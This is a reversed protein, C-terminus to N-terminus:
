RSSIVYLTGRGGLCVTVAEIGAIGDIGDMFNYLNLLWVLYLVALLHGLWGLDLMFGFVPLPPLGGLWALVWGAGIFHTLLRWRAPIHGHDDLFGVLAVWAGAGLLAWVIDAPLGNVQGLLSLAVLFTLVIAAGGGRATPITHSSRENPIDLLNRSLAYHRILGTLMFSFVATLVFILWVNMLVEIGSFM